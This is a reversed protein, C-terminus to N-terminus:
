RGSAPAAKAQDHAGVVTCTGLVFATLTLASAPSGDPGRPLGAVAGAVRPLPEPHRGPPTVDAARPGPEVLGSDPRHATDSRRTTPGIRERRRRAADPALTAADAGLARRDFAHAPGVASSADRRVAADPSAISRAVPASRRGTVSARRSASWRGPWRTASTGRPATRCTRTPPCPTGASPHGHPAWSAPSSPSCTRGRPTGGPPSMANPPWRRRAPVWWTCPAPSNVARRRGRCRVPWPSTSRARPAASGTRACAAPTAPPSRARPSGCCGPPTLDLLVARARPLERLSDIRPGTVIRGGRRRLEDAMADVVSQSGGLAIPWGVADGLAALVLGDSASLALRLRFTDPERERQPQERGARKEGTGAGPAGDV